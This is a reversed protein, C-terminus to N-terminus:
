AFGGNILQAHKCTRESAPLKQYQWGECSCYLRGGKTPAMIKYQKGKENDFMLYKGPLLLIAELM